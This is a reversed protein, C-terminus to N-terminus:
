EDQGEMSDAIRELADAIREMYDPIAVFFRYAIVVILSLIFLGVLILIGFIYKDATVNDGGEGSNNLIVLNKCM